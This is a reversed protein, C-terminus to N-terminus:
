ALAVVLLLSLVLLLELPVWLASHQSQHSFSVFIGRLVFGLDLLRVQAIHVRQVARVFARLGRMKTTDQSVLKKTAQTPVLVQPLPAGIVMNVNM